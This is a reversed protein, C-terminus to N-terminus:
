EGFLDSFTEESPKTEVPTAAKKGKQPKYDRMAPIAERRQRLMLVSEHIEELTM